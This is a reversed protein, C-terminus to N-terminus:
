SMEAIEAGAYLDHNLKEWRNEVGNRAFLANTITPSLQM